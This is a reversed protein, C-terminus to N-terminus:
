CSDIYANIPIRCCTTAEIFARAHKNLRLSLSQKTYGDKSRWTPVLVLSKSLQGARSARGSEQVYQELCSCMAVHVVVCVGLADLGLGLMNTATCLKEAGQAFARM